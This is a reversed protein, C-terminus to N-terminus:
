DPAKPHRKKEQTAFAAARDERAEAKAPAAARSAALLQAHEKERASFAAMREERAKAKAPAAEREAALEQVHVKEHASLEARQKQRDTPISSQASTATAMTLIACATILAIKM